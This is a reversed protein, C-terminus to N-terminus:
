NVHVRFVVEGGYDPLPRLYGNKDAASNEADLQVGKGGPKAAYAWFGLVGGGSPSNPGCVPDGSYDTIQAHFIGNSDVNAFAVEFTISPGVGRMSIRVRYDGSAFQDPPDIRGTFEMMPLKACEFDASRSSSALDPVDIVKLQCGKEVIRVQLGYAPVGALMTPVQYLQLGPRPVLSTSYGPVGSAPAGRLAYSVSIAESKAGPPLRIEFDRPAVLNEGAAHETGPIQPKSSALRLRLDLLHTSISDIRRAPVLASGEMNLNFKFDNFAMSAARVSSFLHDNRSENSETIQNEDLQQLLVDRSIPKAKAAALTNLVASLNRWVFERMHLIVGVAADDGYSSGDEFIVAQIKATRREGEALPGSEGTRFERTERPRIEPYANSNTVSDFYLQSYGRHMGSAGTREAFLTLATISMQSRNTLSVKTTGDEAADIKIAFRPDQPADQPVGTAAALLLALFVLARNM